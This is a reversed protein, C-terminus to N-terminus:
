RTATDAMNESNEIKIVLKNPLCVIPTIGDSITGQNICVHDPCSAEIVSIKGKEVLINNYSGNEGEVTIVHSESVAELDIERILVGNQYIRAVPKDVRIGLVVICSVIGAALVIIFIILALYKRM